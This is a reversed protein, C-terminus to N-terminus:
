KDKKSNNQKLKLFFIYILDKSDADFLIFNHRIIPMNMINTSVIAERKPRSIHCVYIFM